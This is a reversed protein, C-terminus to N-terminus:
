NKIIPFSGFPFGSMTLVAMQAAEGPLDKSEEKKIHCFYIYCFNAM